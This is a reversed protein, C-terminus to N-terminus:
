NTVGIKTVETTLLANKMMKLQRVVSGDILKDGIKIIVGGLISEDIRTKLMMNKGTVMSLKRMLASHEETTLPMATIVEAEAINRAENALKRYETIIAPLAAERRKDVLLLLFNHVFSELEQAFLKTITEKKAQGSVRPHYFFIALDEHARITKEVMQLEEEVKSLMDKGAAVEYVAQAYKLALQNVLM